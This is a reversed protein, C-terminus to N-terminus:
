DNDIVEYGKYYETVDAQFGAGFVRYGRTELEDSVKRALETGDCEYGVIIDLSIQLVRRTSGINM